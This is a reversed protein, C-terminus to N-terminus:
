ICGTRRRAVTRILALRLRDTDLPGTLKARELALAVAQYGLFNESREKLVASRAQRLKDQARHLSGAVIAAVDAEYKTM